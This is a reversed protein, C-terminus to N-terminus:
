KEAPENQYAAYWALDSSKNDTSVKGEGEPNGFLVMGLRGQSPLKLSLIKLAIESFKLSYAVQDSQGSAIIKEDATSQDSPSEKPGDVNLVIDAITLKIVGQLNFMSSNAGAGPLKIFVASAFHTAPRTGNPSWSLILRANLGASSALSGLTGLNLNCSLAYWDKALGKDDLPSNVNLYGLQAPSKDEVGQIFGTPIIPFHRILSHTRAESKPLDFATSTPDFSFVRKSPDKIDFQMNVHLSSCSLRKFSFADLGKLPEFALDCWISFQAHIIDPQTKEAKTLKQAVLTNFQVKLIDVRSLVKSNLYFKSNGKENFVYAKHGDHNEYSGNLLITNHSGNTANGEEKIVRDGFLKNMTLQIKSEFQAIASNEFLVKLTLVKFDFDVGIPPTPEVGDVYGSDIYNILGFLSSKPKENLKRQKSKSKDHSIHSVNIGFHHARFRKLNIGGLLGQLEPPFDRLGITVNLALIGNWHEDHIINFINTFFKTEGEHAKDQEKDHEEDVKTFYEQLWQSLSAIENATKDSGPKCVFLNAETWTKTQKVRDVLAGPCFKFIIVNTYTGYAGNKGVDLHFPWGAIKIKNDFAPLKPLPILSTTQSHSNKGPPKEEAQQERLLKQKEDLQEGFSNQAVVLFQQSTQFASRTTSTLYHLKLTEGDDATQGPQSPPGDGPNHCLLLWQWQPPTDDSLSVLLGQPTVTVHKSDPQDDNPSEVALISMASLANGVASDESAKALKTVEKKRTSNLIQHEFQIFQAQSFHDSPEIGSHPVLPFCHKSDGLKASAVKYVGLYDPNYKAVGKSPSFLPSTPPQSYYQNPASHSSAPNRKIQVWATTADVGEKSGVLHPAHHDGGDFGENEPLPFVPVGAPNDLHFHLIDDHVFDVTETGTLGCLLHHSQSPADLTKAGEVSLSFEGQPTLCYRGDTQYKNPHNTLALSGNAGGLSTLHIARGSDTTLHTAVSHEPAFWSHSGEPNEFDLQVSMLINDPDIASSRFFPFQIPKWYPTNEATTSSPTHHIYYNTGARGFHRLTSEPIDAKFSFAGQFEHNFILDITEDIAIDSDIHEPVEGPVNITGNENFKLLFDGKNEVKFQFRDTVPATIKAGSEPFRLGIQHLFFGQSDAGTMDGHLSIHAHVHANTDVLPNQVWIFRRQMDQTLRYNLADGFELWQKNTINPRKPKETAKPPKRNGTVEPHKTFFAYLTPHNWTEGLPIEKYPFPGHWLCCGGLTQETNSQTASPNKPVLVTFEDNFEVLAVPVLIQSEKVTNM